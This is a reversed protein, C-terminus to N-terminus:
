FKVNKIHLISLVNAIKTNNKAKMQCEEGSWAPFCILIQTFLCIITCWVVFALFTESCSPSLPELIMQRKNVWIFMLIVVFLCSLIGQVTLVEYQKNIFGAAAEAFVLCMVTLLTTLLIFLGKENLPPLKLALVVTIVSLVITVGLSALGPVLKIPGLFAAFCMSWMTVTLGLLIRVVLCHTQLKKVFLFLLLLIFGAPMITLLIVFEVTILVMWITDVAFWIVQRGSFPPQGEQRYRKLNKDPMYYREMIEDATNPKM